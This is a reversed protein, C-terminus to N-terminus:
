CSYAQYQFCYRQSRFGSFGCFMRFVLNIKSQPDYYRIHKGMLYKAIKEGSLMPCQMFADYIYWQKAFARWQQVRWHSM